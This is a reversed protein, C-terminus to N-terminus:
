KNQMIQISKTLELGSVINIVNIESDEDSNDVYFKVKLYYDNNLIDKIHLYVNDIKREVIACEDIELRICTDKNLVQNFVFSFYNNDLIVGCISCYSFDSNHVILDNFRYVIRTEPSHPAAKRNICVSKNPLRISLHYTDIDYIFLLPKCRDIEAQARDRDSKKITWAVGVLALLGGYVAAVVATVITQLKNTDPMLYILYITIAVALLLEILMAVSFFAGKDYNNLFAVTLIYLNRILIIGGFIFIWAKWQNFIAMYLCDLLWWYIINKITNISTRTHQEKTYNGKNDAYAKFWCFCIPIEWAIVAFAFWCWTFDACAFHVILAAIIGILSAIASSLTLKYMQSLVVPPKANKPKNKSKKKCM